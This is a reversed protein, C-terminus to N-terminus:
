PVLGLSGQIRSIHANLVRVPLLGPTTQLSMTSSVIASCAHNEARNISKQENGPM